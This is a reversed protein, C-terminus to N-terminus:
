AAPRAVNAWVCNDAGPEFPDVISVLGHVPCSYAIRIGHGAAVVPVVNLEAGCSTCAPGSWPFEPESM